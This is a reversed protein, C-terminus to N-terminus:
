RDGKQEDGGSGRTQDAVFGTDRVCKAFPCLLSKSLWVCGRCHKNSYKAGM